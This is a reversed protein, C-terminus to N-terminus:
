LLIGLLVPQLLLHELRLIGFEFLRKNRRLRLQFLFVASLTAGLTAVNPAISNRGHHTALDLPQTISYVLTPHPTAQTATTYPSTSSNYAGTLPGWVCPLLTDYANRNAPNDSFFVDLFVRAGCWASRAMVVGFMLRLGVQRRSTLVNVVGPKCGFHCSRLRSEGALRARM